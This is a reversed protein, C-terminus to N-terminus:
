RPLDPVAQLWLMSGSLRLAGWCFPSLGQASGHCASAAPLLVAQLQSHLAEGRMQCPRPTGLAASVGRQRAALGREEGAICPASLQGKSGTISRARM